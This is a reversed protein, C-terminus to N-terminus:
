VVQRYLATADPMEVVNRVENYAFSKVNAYVTVYNWPCNLTMPVRTNARVFCRM